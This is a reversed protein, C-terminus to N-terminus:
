VHFFNNSIIALLFTSVVNHIQKELLLQFNKIANTILTEEINTMSNEFLIRELARTQIRGEQLVSAVFTENFGSCNEGFLYSTKHLNRGLM